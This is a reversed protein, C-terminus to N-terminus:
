NSVSIHEGEKGVEECIKSQLVNLLITELTRQYELIGCCQAELSSCMSFQPGSTIARVTYISVLTSLSRIISSLAPKPLPISHCNCHKTGLGEDLKENSAIMVADPPGNSTTERPGLTGGALRVTLSTFVNTPARRCTSTISKCVCSVCVMLM